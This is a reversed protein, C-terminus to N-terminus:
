GALVQVTFDCIIAWVHQRLAKIEAAENNGDGSINWGEWQVWQVGATGDSCTLTPSGLQASEDAFLAKHIIKAYRERARTQNDERAGADTYCDDWQRVHVLRFPHDIMERGGIGSGPANPTIRDLPRIIIAPTDLRLTDDTGAYDALDGHDLLRLFEANGATTWAAPLNTSLVSLVADIIEASHICDTAV